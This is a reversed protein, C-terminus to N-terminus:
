ITQWNQCSEGIPAPGTTCNSIALSHALSLIRWGRYEVRCPVLFQHFESQRQVPSCVVARGSKDQEETTQLQLLVLCFSPTLLTAGHGSKQCFYTLIHTLVENKSTM